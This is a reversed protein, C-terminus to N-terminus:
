KKLRVSGKNARKCSREYVYVNSVCVNERTKKRTRQEHAVSAVIIKFLEMPIWFLIQLSQGYKKVFGCICFFINHTYHSGWLNSRCKDRTRQGDNTGCSGDLPTAYYLRPPCAIFENACVARTLMNRAHLGEETRRECLVLTSPSHM